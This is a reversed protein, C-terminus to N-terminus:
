GGIQYMEVKPRPHGYDTMSARLESYRDTRARWIAAIRELLDNDTAGSRMAARLDTGEIAFLCTYVKGDASLRARTCDGCFPATVSSIFGVEASGDDFRYRDAVEGHYKKKAPRMPFRENIREVLERSPVVHELRWGNRNGVDMYEIFRITIGRERFYDVMDVVANENVGRQVVTNIKIDPFGAERAAEIGDLVKGVGVGRGNMEGVVADDLADLSVTVRTLGASRLAAAHRRLLVGNTTLAVEEVGPIGSLRAVLDPLNKRLLPEGGTIRLKTVGLRVFARAIREIEPFTLLETESLFVYREGYKEKPMCYTCRLNCNDIVSIRLDRVPRNLRDRPETDFRTMPM